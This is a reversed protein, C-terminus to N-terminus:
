QIAWPLSSYENGQHKTKGSAQFPSNFSTFRTILVVHPLSKKIFKFCLYYSETMFGIQEIGSPNQGPPVAPPV